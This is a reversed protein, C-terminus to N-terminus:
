WPRNWGGLIIQSPQIHRLGFILFFSDLPTNYFADRKSIYLPLVLHNLPKPQILSQSSDASWSITASGMEVHLHKALDKPCTDCYFTNREDEPGRVDNQCEVCVLTAPNGCTACHFEMSENRALLRVTKGNIKPVGYGLVELVLETTSGFDYEYSFRMDQQLVDKLRSRMPRDGYESMVGEEPAVYTKNDITFHSM